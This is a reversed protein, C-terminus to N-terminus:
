SGFSTELGTAEKVHEEQIHNTTRCSMTEGKKHWRNRFSVVHVGFTVSGVPVVLYRCRSFCISGNPAEMSDEGLTGKRPLM